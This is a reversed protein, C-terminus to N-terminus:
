YGPEHVAVGRKAVVLIPRLNRSESIDTILSIIALNGVELFELGCRNPTAHVLRVDVQVSRNPYLFSITGVCGTRLKAALDVKMGAVSLDLCRCPLTAGATSFQVAFDAPFRPHRYQFFHM